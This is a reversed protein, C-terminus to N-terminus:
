ADMGNSSAFVKLGQTTNGLSPFLNYNPFVSFVTTLFLDYIAPVHRGKIKIFLRYGEAKDKGDEGDKGDESKVERGM